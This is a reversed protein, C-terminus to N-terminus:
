RGMWSNISALIAQARKEGIGEVCKLSEIDATNIEAIHNFAKIVKHAIAMPIRAIYKLIRYGRIKLVTEELQGISVMEYGMTRAIVLPGAEKLSLLNALVTRSEEETLNDKHYDMLFLSLSEEVDELIETLEMAALDGEIGLEVVYPLIDSHIKLVDYGKAVIGVVDRLNTRGMLEDTNLQGLKKEFNQKYKEMTALAQAVKTTLFSIDNIQYKQKDYYITVAKRRESVAIAVNGTQYAMREATRHRIGTASSPITVDPVLHTNAALIKSGDENLVIAGDMKALEYLKESTFNTDLKFGGQILNKNSELDDMLLILAGFSAKVIDDLAKRLKTGPAVLKLKALLKDESMIGRWCPLTSRHLSRGVGDRLRIVAESIFYYCM